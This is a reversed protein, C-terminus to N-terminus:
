PTCGLSTLMSELTDYSPPEVVDVLAPPEPLGRNRLMEAFPRPDTPRFGHEAALAILQPDTTLLAGIRDGEPTLPVLTHRSFITPSPYLLRADAPLVPDASLAEALYQAEYVLAMPVRGMGASLYDEFLVETTPPLYGQDRFLPRIAPMVAAAAAPDAVVSDADAAYSAIGLYMAASNSQCPATTSLLVNKRAPFATNGPLQDWRTDAAALALYRHVDFTTTGPSVVGAQTLLDVIPAFTAVAMPSSFPAYTRAAPREALLKDAAPSSSPFAFDYDDLRVTTAIQRSGAPDVRVELGNARFVDLVRQDAFFASKESGIVGTVTTLATPESEGGGIDRFVVVGVVVLLALALLWSLVRRGSRRGGPATM